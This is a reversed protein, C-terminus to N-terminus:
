ASFILHLQYFTLYALIDQASSLVLYLLVKSLKHLAIELYILNDVLLLHEICILPLSHYITLLLKHSIDKFHDLHWAFIGM